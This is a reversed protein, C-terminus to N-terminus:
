FMFYERFHIVRSHLFNHNVQPWSWSSFRGSIKPRMVSKESVLLPKILTSVLLIPSSCYVFSFQIISLPLQDPLSSLSNFHPFPSSSNLLSELSKSYKKHFKSSEDM